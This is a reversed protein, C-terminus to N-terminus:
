LARAAQCDRRCPKEEAAAAPSGSRESHYSDGHERRGDQGKALRLGGPHLMVSVALPAAFNHKM